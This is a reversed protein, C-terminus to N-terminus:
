TNHLIPVAAVATLRWAHVALVCRIVACFTGWVGGELMCGATRLLMVRKHRCPRVRIRAQLSFVDLSVVTNQTNQYMMNNGSAAGMLSKAVLMGASM